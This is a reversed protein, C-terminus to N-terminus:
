RQFKKRFENERVHWPTDVTTKLAISVLYKICIYKCIYKVCVVFDNLYATMRLILLDWYRILDDKVSVAHEFHSNTNMSNM